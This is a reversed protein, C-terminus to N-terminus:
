KDALKKSIVITNPESLIKEVKGENLPLTFISLICSDAYIGSESFKTKDKEFMVTSYFVRTIEIIEPFEDLMPQVMASPIYERIKSQGNNNVDGLVRYISDGNTHFQDYSLEDWVWLSILVSCTLGFALGLINIISFLKNKLLGRYFMRLFYHVMIVTSNNNQTKFLSFSYFGKILHLADVWYMLKARFWGNREIREDYVEKLDGFFEELYDDKVVKSILWKALTPPKKYQAKM